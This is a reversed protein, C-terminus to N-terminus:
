VHEAENIFSWRDQWSLKDFDELYIARKNDELWKVKPPKIMGKDFLVKVPIVGFIEVYDDHVLTPILYDENTRSKFLKDVHGHGQGGWQLIWSVGYKNASDECQAKCHFKFGKWSIDADFSKKRGEYIEFDPEKAFISNRRFLRHAAIEGLKGTTIDHIIKERNGQKRKRYHSLSTDIQEHAFEQCRELDKKYIKITDIRM